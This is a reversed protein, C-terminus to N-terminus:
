CEVLPLDEDHQIFAIRENLPEGSASFLTFQVIGSPFKSKAITAGFTSKDAKSKVVYRTEGGCQAFIYVQGASIM